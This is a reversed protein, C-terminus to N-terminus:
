RNTYLLTAFIHKCKGGAGAACSCKCCIGKLKNDVSLRILIEHPKDHIKSTQTIYSKICVNNENRITVGCMLIHDALLLAEGEVLPRKSDGLIGLIDQMNIELQPFVNMKVQKTIGHLVYCFLLIASTMFLHRRRGFSVRWM